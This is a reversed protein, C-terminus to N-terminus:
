GLKIGLESAVEELSVTQEGDRVAALAESAARADEADELAELARRSLDVDMITVTERGHDTITVPERRAAEVTQAWHQRAQTATIRKMHLTYTKLTKRHM